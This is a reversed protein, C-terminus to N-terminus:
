TLMPEAGGAMGNDLPLCSAAQLNKFAGALATIQLWCFFIGIREYSGLPAAPSGSPATGDYVFPAEDYFSEARNM